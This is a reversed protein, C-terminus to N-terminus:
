QLTFFRPVVSHKRLVLVNGNTRLCLLINVRRLRVTKVLVEHRVRHILCNLEHHLQTNLNEKIYSLKM